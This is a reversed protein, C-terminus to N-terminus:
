QGVKPMPVPSPLDLADSMGVAQSLCKRYVHNTIAAAVGEEIEGDEDWSSVLDAADGQWLLNGEFSMSAVDEDDQVYTVDMEFSVRAVDDEIAEVEAEQIDEISSSYNINLDGQGGGNKGAELSTISFGVIM